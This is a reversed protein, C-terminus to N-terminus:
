LGFGVQYLRTRRLIAADRLDADECSPPTVCTQAWAGSIMLLSGSVAAAALIEKKM